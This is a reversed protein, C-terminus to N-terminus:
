VNRLRVYRKSLKEGPFEPYEKAEPPATPEPMTSPKTEQVSAPAPTLEPSSPQEPPIAESQKSGDGGM